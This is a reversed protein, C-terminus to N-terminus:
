EERNNGDSEPESAAKEEEDREARELFVEMAGAIDDVTARQEAMGQMIDKVAEAYIEVNAEARLKEIEAMTKMVDARAKEADIMLKQREMDIKDRENTQKAELAIMTDELQQQTAQLQENMKQLRQAELDDGLLAPPMIARMRTALKDSDPIDLSQVLIDMGVEGLQPIVGLLEVIANSLEQRRTAYSAGIEVVVDYKGNDLQLVTPVEGVQALRYGQKKDEVVPQNIPVLMESKDEGIVRLIRKGTYIEPIMGVLIRGVHKMSTALNDVFHFTSNDGQVQRAIIAKGSVGNSEAGQNDNFIGLVSQIANAAEIAEQTMAMSPQPPAQRQPPPALQGTKTVVPDYELFPLNDRNAALWAQKNSKFSGKAGIYPSKPQLAVVETSATKWYNYMRQPDKAPHILSFVERKGKFWAEQGYVPVIPIYKGVFETQELIEDGTSKCYKISCVETEREREVTILGADIFEKLDEKYGRKTSGDLDVYEVLTKTKYEKYYYEVIRVSDDKYWETNATSETISTPSADPYKYKFDEKSMEDVVFAYSADSGDMSTSNPDIFVGFPNLIRDIYIDQDFSDDDCYRTGIRIFGRGSAVANWAATDYATEADSTIEINKILGQYIEAVRPDSDSDVPKTNITPRAQRIQNVVLNIFTLVRNETLCPRGEAQRKAKIDHPWQEGLAFDLDGEGRTYEESYYGMAADSREQIDQLLKENKEDKKM